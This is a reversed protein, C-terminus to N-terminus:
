MLDLLKRLGTNVEQQLRPPLNGLERQILSATATMLRHLQLISSVRLGTSIFDSSNADIVVDTVAPHTVIRSTIFALVVHRHTGITETQCVAPRRQYNEFRDTTMLEFLESAAKADV